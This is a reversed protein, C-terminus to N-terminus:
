SARVPARYSRGVTRMAASTGTRVGIKPARTRRGTVTSWTIATLEGRHLALADGGREHQKQQPGRRSEGPIREALAVLRRRRRALRIRSREDRGRGADVVHRIRVDGVDHSGAPRQRRVGCGRDM